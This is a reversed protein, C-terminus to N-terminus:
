RLVVGGQFVPPRFGEWQKKTLNDPVVGGQFM